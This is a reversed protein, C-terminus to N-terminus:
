ATQVVDQKQGGQAEGARQAGTRARLGWRGLRQPAAFPPQLFDAALCRRRLGGGRQAKRLGATHRAVTGAVSEGARDVDVSIAEFHTREHRGLHGARAPGALQFGSVEARQLIRLPIFENFSAQQNVDLAHLM